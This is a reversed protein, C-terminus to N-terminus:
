VDLEDELRLAGGQLTGTVVTGSGKVTFVRDIWLRPRGIDVAAPVTSLADDVAAILAELGEGTTSSVKVIPAHELVSGAVRERVDEEVMELWEEEVLDMKTLVVIGRAIGLLDLIELHEQSQPMWSETAAVVFLTLHVGGVGALMN